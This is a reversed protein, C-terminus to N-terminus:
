VLWALTSPTAIVDGSELLLVGAMAGARELLDLGADSGLIVAAKALGEAALAGEAVVTGQLVDTHASRGTRPDILHHREGGALRWRHISTGSTAIGVRRGRQSPPVQLLALDADQRRPDAIAVEWGAEPALSLALDGDADVMASPYGSLLGLARDAIWGKGVGDLDFVVRGRRHVSPRRDAGVKWWHGRDTDPDRGAEAAHRADLLTVDVLGETREGLAVSADLVAALTPRVRVLDATPVRNLASLDSSPSFRTLRAAWALIRAAARRLDREARTRTTSTCAVRLRVSGGMARVEHSVEAPAGPETTRQLASSAPTAVGGSVSL